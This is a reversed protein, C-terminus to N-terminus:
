SQIVRALGSLTRHFSDLIQEISDGESLWVVDALFVNLISFSRFVELSAYHIVLGISCLEIFCSIISAVAM